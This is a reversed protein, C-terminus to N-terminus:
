EILRKFIYTVGDVCIHNKLDLEFQGNLFKDIDEDPGYNDDKPQMPFNKLIYDIIKQKSSFVNFTNTPEDIDAIVYVEM